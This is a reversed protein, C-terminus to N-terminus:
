ALHFLVAASRFVEDIADLVTINLINERAIDLSLGWLRILEAVPWVNESM